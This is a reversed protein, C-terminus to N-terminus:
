DGENVVFGDQFKYRKGGIEREGAIVAKGSKEFYRKRGGKEIFQNTVMRGTEDVYYVNKGDDEVIFDETKLYGNNGIYYWNDGSKKWENRVIDGYDYYRWKGLKKQWGNKKNIKSLQYLKVAGLGVIILLMLTGIVFYGTSHQKLTEYALSSFGECKIYYGWCSFLLTTILIWNCWWILPYKQVLNAEADQTSKINLGTLKAIFFMFVYILNMICFCWIIGVIMLKTVPIDKAGLFINDLSSIGGFLIFSLATFIAILSILQMNMEKLLKVEALKMKEEVIRTYDADDKKFLMMQRKALNVHDWIKLVTRKTRNYPNRQNKYEPKWPFETEFKESYIYNIVSDLNTQVIGWLEDTKLDFVFNTINTYLIRDENIIYGHLTEIFIKSDFDKSDKLLRECLDDVGESMENIYDSASDIGNKNRKNLDITAM